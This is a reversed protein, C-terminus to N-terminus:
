NWKQAQKRLIYIQSNVGIIETDLKFTLRAKSTEETDKLIVFEIFAELPNLNFTPIDFGDKSNINFKYRKGVENKIYRQNAIDYIDELFLSSYYPKLYALMDKIIENSIKSNIENHDLGFAGCWEVFDIHKELRKLKIEPLMNLAAQFREEIKKISDTSEIIDIRHDEIGCRIQITLQQLSTQQQSKSRQRNKYLAYGGGAAAAVLGAVLAKELLGKGIDTLIAVQEMVLNTNSHPLVETFVLEQAYTQPSDIVIFVSIIFIIFAAMMTINKLIFMGSLQYSACRLCGIDIIRYKM